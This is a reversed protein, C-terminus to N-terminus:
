LKEIGQKIAAFDANTKYLHDAIVEMLLYDEESDIDLIGTDFMVSAACRGDWLHATTNTRMFNGNFVYISANMDFMEPAQQRATLNSAIVKEVEIEDKRKVMNFYPNRRAEAVTFVVDLQPHAEMIEFANKVDGARRLPSTIDLDIVYDYKKGTRREMEAQTHQMVAMKAVLDGGLEEPRKVIAVGKAQQAVIDILAESDTSLAIDVSLDAREAAFGRAAAVTYLVLPKGLFVKLNKNKFGKSGARGCITILVNAM